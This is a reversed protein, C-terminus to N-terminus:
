LMGKALLAVGAGALGVLAVNRAYFVRSILEEIM